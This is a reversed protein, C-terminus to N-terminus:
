EDTKEKESALKMDREILETIYKTVTVGKDFSVIKLYRKYEVPIQVQLLTSKM